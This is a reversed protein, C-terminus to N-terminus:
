EATNVFTLQEFRGIMENSINQGYRAMLVNAPHELIDPDDTSKKQFGVGSFLRTLMKQYDWPTLGSGKLDWHWCFEITIIIHNEVFDNSFAEKLLYHAVRYKRWDPSIEVAGLELVDPHKSWRSYSDPYHFTVYGIIEQEHRAIFVNGEPLNSILMLAAQQKKPPRFNSLQDSMLLQAIYTSTVPGEFHILGAATYLSSGNLYVEQNATDPFSNVSSFYPQDPQYAISM